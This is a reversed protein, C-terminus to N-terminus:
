ERKQIHRAVSNLAGTAGSLSFDYVYFKGSSMPIAFGVADAGSTVTNKFASFDGILFVNDGGGLRVCRLTQYSATAGTNVLAPTDNHCTIGSPALYFICTTETCFLGLRSSGNETYTHYADLDAYVDWDGFIHHDAYTPASIFLLLILVFARM